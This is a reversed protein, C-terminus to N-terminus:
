LAQILRAVDPEAMKKGDVVYYPTGPLRLKKARKWAAAARAYVDPRDLCDSFRQAELTLDAAVRAPELARDWAVREFLYRDAQWHKGQEGACAAIRLPLCRDGSADCPIRPYYARVVRLADPQRALARLTRASAAKCHPCTYDVLEIVTLKPQEAGIWADGDATIGQAYPLAGRWDFAAWYRPMFLALALLAGAAPAYLMLTDVPSFSGAPDRRRARWAVLALALCLVHVGECLLCVSGLEFLEISLLALSALAAACALPLTWFSRRWAAAGILAFGIIGWLPLPVGLVVAYSSLAVSACDFRAGLACFSALDPRTHARYHVVELLVCLAVGLLALAVLWRRSREASV